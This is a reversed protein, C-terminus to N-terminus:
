HPSIVHMLDTNLFDLKFNDPEFGLYEKACVEEEPYFPFSHLQSLHWDSQKMYKQFSILYQM